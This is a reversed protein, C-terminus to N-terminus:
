PSIKTRENAILWRNGDVTVRIARYPVKEESANKLSVTVEEIIADRLKHLPFSVSDESIRCLGNDRYGSPTLVPDIKKFMFTENNTSDYAAHGLLKDLINKMNKM